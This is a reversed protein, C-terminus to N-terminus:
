GILLAERPTNVGENWSNVSVKEPKDYVDGYRSDNEIVLDLDGHEEIATNLLRILESAKM